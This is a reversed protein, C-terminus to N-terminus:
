NSVFVGSDAPIRAADHAENDCPSTKIGRRGKDGWLTSPSLYVKM